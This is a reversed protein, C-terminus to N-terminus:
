AARSATSDVAKRWQVQQRGTALRALAVLTTGNLLCFAYPLALARSLLGRGRGLLAGMGAAVYFALQTVLAAAYVTSRRALLAATALAAAPALLRM